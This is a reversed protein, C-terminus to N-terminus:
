PKLMGGRPSLVLGSRIHVVRVGAQEAPATAAEWKQCIESLFQDGPGSEETLEEDGRDGYYGIASGSVLIRPGHKTLAEALQATPGVRSDVVLKKREPTWKSDGIGAGALHVVADAETLGSLDLREGNPGDRGIRGITHGNAELAPMLASAIFGHSGSVLVHM